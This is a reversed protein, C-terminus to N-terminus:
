LKKALAIKIRAATQAPTLGATSITIDARRYFRLRSAYLKKARLAATEWRGKLLPRTDAEPKLRKELEAWPCYLFVTTGSAALASKWRRSPYVGGGLAIVRGQGAALEKVCQAELRRFAAMGKKGAIESISRGSKKGALADSDALPRGLARALLKGASTKGAGMFGTLFINRLAPATNEPNKKAM